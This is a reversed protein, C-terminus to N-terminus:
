KNILENKKSSDKTNSIEKSIKNRLEILKELKVFVKSRSKGMDILKNSLPKLGRRKFAEDAKKPNNIIWKIDLM